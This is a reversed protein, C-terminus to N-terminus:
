LDFKNYLWNQTKNVGYCSAGIIVAGVIISGGSTEFATAISAAGVITGIAVETAGGVLQIAVKTVKQNTTYNANSLTANIDFATTIGVYVTGLQSSVTKGFLKAGEEITGDIGYWAVGTAVERIGTDNNGFQNVGLSTGGSGSSLQSFESGSLNIDFKIDIDININIDFGIDYSGTPWNEQLDQVYPNDKLSGVGNSWPIGVYESGGHTNTAVESTDTYDTDGECAGIVEGYRNWVTGCGSPDFYNV